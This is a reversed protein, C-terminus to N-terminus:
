DRCQDIDPFPAVLTLLTVCQNAQRNHEAEDEITIKRASFDALRKMERVSVHSVKLVQM